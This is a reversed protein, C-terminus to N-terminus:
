PKKKLNPCRGGAFFGELRQEEDVAQQSPAEEAEPLPGEVISEGTNQEEDM